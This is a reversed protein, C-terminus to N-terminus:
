YLSADQDKILAFWTTALHSWARVGCHEHRMHANAAL